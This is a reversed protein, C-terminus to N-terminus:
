KGSINNGGDGSIIGNQGTGDDNNTGGTSLEPKGNFAITFTFTQNANANGGFPVISTLTCNSVIANGAQDTWRCLTHLADGFAMFRAAVYDQAADGVVRQGTVAFTIRKGTEETHEWGKDAWDAITSSTANASPTIGSIGEAVNAWNTNELDAVPDQGGNVDIELKNVWNEPRKLKSM